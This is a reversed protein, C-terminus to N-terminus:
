ADAQKGRSRKRLCSRTINEPMFYFILGTQVSSMSIVMNFASNCACNVQNKMNEFPTRVHGSAM